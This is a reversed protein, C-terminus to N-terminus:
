KAEKALSFLVQVLHLQSIQDIEIWGFNAEIQSGGSDLQGLLVHNECRWDSRSRFMMLKSEDPWTAVPDSIKPTKLDAWQVERQAEQLLNGTANVAAQVHLFQPM